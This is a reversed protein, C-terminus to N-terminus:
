SLVKPVNAKPTNTRIYSPTEDPSTMVISPSSTRPKSTNGDPRALHVAEPHKFLSTVKKVFGPRSQLSPTPSHQSVLTLVIRFQTFSPCVPCEQEPRVLEPGHLHSLNSEPRNKKWLKPLRLRHSPESMKSSTTKRHPSPCAGAPIPYSLVSIHLSSTICALPVAVTLIYWAGDWMQRKRRESTNQIDALTVRRWVRRAQNVFRTSRSPGVGSARARRM